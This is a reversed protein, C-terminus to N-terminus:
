CSADGEPLSGDPMPMWHTPTERMNDLCCSCSDNAWRWSEYSPLWAAEGVRVGGGREARVLIPIPCEDEAAKPATDFCQWPPSTEATQKDMGRRAVTALWDIAEDPSAETEGLESLEAGWQGTPCAAVSAISFDCGNKAPMRLVLSGCWGNAFNFRVRPAGTEPHLDAEFRGSM